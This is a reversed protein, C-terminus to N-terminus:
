EEADDDGGAKAAITASVLKALDEIKNGLADIDGTLKSQVQRLRMINRGEVTRVEHKYAALQGAWEPETVDNVVQLVHLWHTERELEDRATAKMLNMYEIM